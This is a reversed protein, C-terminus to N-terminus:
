KAEEAKNKALSSFAITFASFMASITLWDPIRAEKVCSIIEAATAIIAIVFIATLIVTLKNTKTM